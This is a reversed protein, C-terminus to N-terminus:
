NLPSDLKRRNGEKGRNLLEEIAFPETESLDVQENLANISELYLRDENLNCERPPTTM